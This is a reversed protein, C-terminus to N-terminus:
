PWVLRSSPTNLSRSAGRAQLSWVSVTCSRGEGDLRGTSAEEASLWPGSIYSADYGVELIELSACVGQSWRERVCELWDMGSSSATVRVGQAGREGRRGKSGLTRTRAHTSRAALAIAPVSPRSGTGAFPGACHWPSFPGCVLLKALSALMAHLSQRSAARGRKSPAPLWVLTLPSPLPTHWRRCRRATVVAKGDGRLDRRSDTVRGGPRTQLQLLTDTPVGRTLSAQQLSRPRASQLTSKTTPESGLLM